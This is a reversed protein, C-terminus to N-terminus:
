THLLDFILHTRPQDGLNRVSHRKKNDFWWLENERMVVIENEVVFETGLVADIVLHYRDRIACYGGVDVHPVIRAGADLKSIRVRGIEGNTAEAFDEVFRRTEPLAHWAPLSESEQIEHYHLGAIRRNTRLQIRNSNAHTSAASPLRGIDIWAPSDAIEARMKSLDLRTKLCRFNIM